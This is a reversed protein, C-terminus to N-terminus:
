APKKMKEFQGAAYDIATQAELNKYLDSFRGRMYDASYRFRDSPIYVLKMTKKTIKVCQMQDSRVDGSLWGSAIMTGFHPTGEAQLGIASEIRARAAIEVSVNVLFTM